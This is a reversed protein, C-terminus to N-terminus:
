SGYATEENVGDIIGSESLAEKVKAMFEAEGGQVAPEAIVGNGQFASILIVAALLILKNM